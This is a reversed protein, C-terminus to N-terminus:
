PSRRKEREKKLDIGRKIDVHVYEETKALGRLMDGIEGM